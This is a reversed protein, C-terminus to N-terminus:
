NGGTKRYATLETRLARVEQIVLILYFAIVVILGFFLAFAAWTWPNENQKKAERYIWFALVVNLLYQFAFSIMTVAAVNLTYNVNDGIGFYSALFPTSLASFLLNLIFAIMLVIAVKSINPLTNNFPM